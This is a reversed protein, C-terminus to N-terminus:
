PIYMKFAGEINVGEYSVIENRRKIRRRTVTGIHVCSPSSRARRQTICGLTCGQLILQYIHLSMWLPAMYWPCSQMWHSNYILTSPTDKGSVNENILTIELGTGLEWKHSIPIWQFRKCDSATSKPKRRLVGTWRWVWEVMFMFSVTDLVPNVAKRNFVSPSNCSM